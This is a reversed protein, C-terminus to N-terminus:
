QGWLMNGWLMNCWAKLDVLFIFAFFIMQGMEVYLVVGLSSV